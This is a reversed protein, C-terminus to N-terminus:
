RVFFLASDPWWAVNGEFKGERVINDCMPVGDQTFEVSIYFREGEGGTVRIVRVDWAFTKDALDQAKEIGTADALDIEYNGGMNQKSGDASKLWSQYTAPQSYGVKIKVKPIGRNINLEIAAM